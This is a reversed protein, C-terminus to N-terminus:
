EGGGDDGDGEKPESSHGGLLGGLGDGLNQLGKGVDQIGKGLGKNVGKLADGLTRGVGTHDLLPISELASAVSGVAAGSLGQIPNEAIHKMLVGLMISVLQHSLQDADTKTGLNHLELRPIKTDLHGGAINVISGSATLHIDEIILVKVNFNVPEQKDDPTATNREVNKVIESANMRDDIQELDVTLGKIHVNPIEIDSSILTGLNAAIAAEGVEIFNDRKFHPPNAITLGSFSTESGFVAMSVSSVETPVGLVNTGETDIVQRAIADIAIYAIAVLLILGVVSGILIRWMWKM